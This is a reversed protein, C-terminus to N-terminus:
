GVDAITSASSRIDAIVVSKHESNAGRASLEFDTGLTATREIDRSRSLSKCRMVAVFARRYDSRRLTYIVVNLVSNLHLIWVALTNMIPPVDIQTVAMLGRTILFPIWLILFVFIVVLIAVTAKGELGALYHPFFALWQMHKKELIQLFKSNQKEM